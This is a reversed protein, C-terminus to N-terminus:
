QKKGGKMFWEDLEHGRLKKYVIPLGEAALAIWSFLSCMLAFGISSKYPYDTANRRYLFILNLVAGLLYFLFWGTLATM